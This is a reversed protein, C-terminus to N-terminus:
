ADTWDPVTNSKYMVKFMQVNSWKIRIVKHTTLGTKCTIFTFNSSSLLRTCLWSALLRYLVPRSYQEKIGVEINEGVVKGKWFILVHIIDKTEQVVCSCAWSRNAELPLFGEQFVKGRQIRDTALCETCACCLRYCCGQGQFPGWFSCSILTALETIRQGSFIHCTFIRM